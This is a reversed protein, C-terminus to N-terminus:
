KPKNEKELDSCIWALGVLICASSALFYCTDDNSCKAMFLPAYDMDGNVCPLPVRGTYLEVVTDNLVKSLEDYLEREKKSRFGDIYYMCCSAKDIVSDCKLAYRYNGEKCIQVLEFGYPLKYDALKSEFTNGDTATTTNTVNDDGGNKKDDEKIYRSASKMCRFKSVDDRIARVEELTFEKDRVNLGKEFFYEKTLATVGYKKALKSIGALGKNEKYRRVLENLYERYKVYDIM